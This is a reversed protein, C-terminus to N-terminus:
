KNKKKRIHSLKLYNRQTFLINLVLFFVVFVIIALLMYSQGVKHTFFDLEFSFNNTLASDITEQSVGRELLKAIMYDTQEKMMFYRFLGASYTGPFFMTIYGIWTASGLMGTPIYAGIIFGIAASFIAVVPAMTSEKSIFSCVLITVFAASITSILIVGITGFFNWASLNFSPIFALWVLCIFYVLLNIVFTVFVNFTYYSLLITTPKIPSSMMDKSVGNQRDRIMIFNTNLSVTICSVALIGGMMWSDAVGQLSKVMETDTSPVFEEMAKLIQSTELSRLFVAYVVLTIVPVMFTFLVTSWDKFFVMLHRKTLTLYTNFQNPMERNM